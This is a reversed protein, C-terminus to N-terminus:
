AFAAEGFSIWVLVAVFAKWLPHVYEGLHVDPVYTSLAFGNGSPAQTLKYRTLCKDM